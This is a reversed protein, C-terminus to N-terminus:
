RGESIKVTSGNASFFSLALMGVFFLLSLAAVINLHRDLSMGGTRWQIALATSIFTATWGSLAVGLAANRSITQPTSLDAWLAFNLVTYLSVAVAYLMPTGLAAYSDPSIQYNLGYMLHIMAFLGFIWLFLSKADLASYLVGAILAAVVHTVGIFVHTGTDPSRWATDVYIPTKIIRLFGLSDIFFIGFMLLILIFLRRSIRPHGDQGTRVFRGSGFAPQTHQQALRDMFALKKFALVGMTVAGVLMIWLIQQSFREIRWETTYVNAALYALSTILAAVYGRDSVPILDVTLSFTAPVGIGLGASAIIIWLLLGSESRIHPAVATLITQVVVVIFALRLKVFFQRNWGRKQMFLGVTLAIICTLLALLAMSLAVKHESMGILRTGLDELGLQIFTVNYFYGVGMMGIFLMYGMLTSWQGTKAYQLAQM